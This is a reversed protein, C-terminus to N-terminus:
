RLGGRGEEREVKTDVPHFRLVNGSEPLRVECFFDCKQRLKRRYDVVLNSLTEPSHDTSNLALENCIPPSRGRHFQSMAVLGGTLDDNRRKKECWQSLTKPLLLPSRLKLHARFSNRKRLTLWPSRSFNYSWQISCNRDNLSELTELWCYHSWSPIINENVKCLSISLNAREISCQLICQLVECLSSNWSSGGWFSLYNWVCLLLKIALCLSPRIAISGRPIFSNFQWWNRRRLISEASHIFTQTRWMLCYLHHLPWSPKIYITFSHGHMIKLGPFWDICRTTCALNSRCHRNSLHGAM